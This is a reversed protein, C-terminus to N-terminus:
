KNQLLMGTLVTGKGKIGFCHDVAFLFPKSNNREPVFAENVLTKILEDVVKNVASATVIPCNKFATSDLTLRM